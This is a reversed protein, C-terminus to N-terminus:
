NARKAANPTVVTALALLEDPLERAPAPDLIAPLNHKAAIALAAGVAALSIELQVLLGGSSAILEEAERVQEAALLRNAGPFSMTQKEGSADVQILTAATGARQDKRVFRVDVGLAELREVCRDGDRDAGVRGVLMVSAGLRAAAVAANAGKGGLGTHFADGDTSEGAGQLREARCAYDIGIGGVVVLDFPRFALVDTRLSEEM